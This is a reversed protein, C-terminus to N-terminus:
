GTTGLPDSDRKPGNASVTVEELSQHRAPQRILTAGLSRFAKSNLARVLAPTMAIAGARYQLVGEASEPMAQIM